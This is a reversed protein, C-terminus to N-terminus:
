LYSEASHAMPMMKLRCRVEPSQDAFKRISEPESLDSSAMTSPKGIQGKFVSATLFCVVKSIEIENYLEFGNMKPMRIDILAVDYAGPQFELAAKTPDNYVDVHFANKELMIKFTFTINPDDDVM